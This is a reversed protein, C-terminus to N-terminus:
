YRKAEARRDLAAESQAIGSQATGSQIAGSQTAESQAQWPRLEYRPKQRQRAQYIHGPHSRKNHGLGRTDNHRKCESCWPQKRLHQPSAHVRSVLLRPVHRTGDRHYHKSHTRQTYVFFRHRFAAASKEFLPIHSTINIHEPLPYPCLGLLLAINLLLPEPAPDQTRHPIVSTTFSQAYFPMVEQLMHYFEERLSRTAPCSFLPHVYTMPEHCFTCTLQRNTGPWSLAWLSFSLYSALDVSKLSHKMSKRFLTPFRRPMQGYVPMAKWRTKISQYHHYIVSHVPNTLVPVVATSSNSSSVAPHRYVLSLGLEAVMQLHEQIPACQTTYIPHQRSQEIYDPPAVVYHLQFEHSRSLLPNYLYHWKDRLVTRAPSMQLQQYCHITTSAAEITKPQPHHHTIHLFATLYLVDILTGRSYPSKTIHGTFVHHTAPTIIEYQWTDDTTFANVYYQISAPIDTTLQLTGRPQYVLQLKLPQLAHNLAHLSPDAPNQLRSSWHTPPGETTWYGLLLELTQHAMAHTSPPRIKTWILWQQYLPSPISCTASLCQLSHGAIARDLRSDLTYWPVQYALRPLLHPLITDRWQSVDPDTHSLGFIYPQLLLKRPSPLISPGFDIGLYTFPPSFTDNPSFIRRVTKSSNFRQGTVSTYQQLCATWAEEHRAFADVHTASVTSLIDDAYAVTQGGMRNLRSILPEQIIALLLPSLSDGQPIGRSRYILPIKYFSNSQFHIRLSQNGIDSAHQILSPPARLRTLVRRLYEHDVTDFAKSQDLIKILLHKHRNSHITDSLWRLLVQAGRGRLATQQHSHLLDTQTSLLHAFLRSRWTGIHNGVSIPRYDKAQKLGGKKPLLVLRTQLTTLPLSRRWYYTLFQAFWRLGSPDSSLAAYWHGASLGDPGTSSTRKKFCIHLDNQTFTPTHILEAPWTQPSLDELTASSIDAVTSTPASHQFAAQFHSHLTM